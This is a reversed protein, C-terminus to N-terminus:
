LGPGTLKPIVDKEDRNEENLFLHSETLGLACLSELDRKGQALLLDFDIVTFYHHPM